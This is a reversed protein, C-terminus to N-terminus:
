AIMKDEVYSTTLIIQDFEANRREASTQHLNGGMPLSPKTKKQYYKTKVNNLLDERATPPLEWAIPM